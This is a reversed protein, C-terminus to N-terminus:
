HVCFQLEAALFHSSCAGVITAGMALCFLQPLECQILAKAAERLM